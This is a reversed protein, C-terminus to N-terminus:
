LVTHDQGDVLDGDDIVLDPKFENNMKGVFRDLAKRSQWNMGQWDYEKEKGVRYFHMDTTFGIKLPEKPTRGALKKQITIEKIRDQIYDRSSYGILGVEVILFLLAIIIIKIFKM